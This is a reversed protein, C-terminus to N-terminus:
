VTDLISCVEEKTLGNQQKQTEEIAQLVIVAQQLVKKFRPRDSFDAVEKLKQSLSYTM